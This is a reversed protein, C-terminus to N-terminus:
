YFERLGIVASKSAVVGAAALALEILLTCMIVFNGKLFDNQAISTESESVTFTVDRVNLTVEILKAVQIFGIGIIAILSTICAVTYIYNSSEELLIGFIGTMRSLILVLALTYFMGILLKVSKRRKALGYVNSSLWVLLVFLVAFNITGITFLVKRETPSLYDIGHVPAIEDNFHEVNDDFTTTQPDSM